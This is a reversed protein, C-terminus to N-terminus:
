TLVDQKSKLLNSIVNVAQSGGEKRGSFVTKMNSAENDPKKLAALNAFLGSM